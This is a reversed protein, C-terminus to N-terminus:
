EASKQQEFLWKIIEPDGVTIGGVNHDKGAYESYNILTGGADKIAKVIARTNEVSVTPDADGHATWIPINKFTEAQAPDGGGCIPIAAAFIEPYRAIMDWTGYGGMSLGIAYVRSKDTSYEDLVSRLLEVVCKMAKSEPIKDLKYNGMSWPYNVWMLGEPCQPYLSIVEDMPYGNQNFLTVPIGQIPANNDNGRHGSGHLFIVVPYEKEPDYNTPLYLRYAMELGNSGTFTLPVSIELMNEKKLDGNKEKWYEAYNREFLESTRYSMDDDSDIVLNGEETGSLVERVFYEGLFQYSVSNAACLYVANEEIKLAFDYEGELTDAVAKAGERINGIVIEKEAPTELESVDKKTLKVKYESYSKMILTNALDKADPDNKDYVVTYESSGGSFLEATYFPKEPEPPVTEETQPAATTGAADTVDDAPPMEGSGCASFVTLVVALIVYLWFCRKM